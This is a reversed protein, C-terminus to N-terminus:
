RMIPDHIELSNMYRAIKPVAAITLAITLSDVSLHIFCTSVAGVDVHRWLLLNTVIGSAAAAIIGFVACPALQEAMHTIPITEIIPIDRNTNHALAALAAITLLFGFTTYMIRVYLEYVCHSHRPM